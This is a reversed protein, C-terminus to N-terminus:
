DQDSKALELLAEVYIQSPLKQQLINILNFNKRHLIELQRYKEQLEEFKEIRRLLETKYGDITKQYEEISNEM